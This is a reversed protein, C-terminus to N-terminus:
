AEQEFKTKSKGTIHIFVEDLTPRRLLMDKPELGAEAFAAAAKILTGTRDSVPVSLRYDAEDTMMPAGAIRELINAAVGADDKSYLAIELRDGGFASKLDDPTGEAVVRGSRMISISDALQDAEELYQTTLLVTAGADRLSRISDWVEQRAIPDLGTTPEDVFLVDPSVILSAALDLRRRMGGSYKSAATEGSGSLSFQALLEEARLRAQRPRLRSLRGFMELNQRGTLAEDIAAYQGVLGIRERVRAGQTRVDFGAVSVHGSDPQLLTSFVKVATTKGAGNHGLLGCITGKPVELSFGNLGPGGKAGGFNKRVDHATIALSSAM